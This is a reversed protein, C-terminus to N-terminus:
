PFAEEPTGEMMRQPLAHEFRIRELGIEPFRLRRALQQGAIVLQLASHQRLEPHDFLQYSNDDPLPLMFVNIAANNYEHHASASACLASSSIASPLFLSFMVVNPM